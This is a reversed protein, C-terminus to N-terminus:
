ALRANIRTRYKQVPYKKKAKSESRSPGSRSSSAATANTSKSAVSKKGKDRCSFLTVTVCQSALSVVSVVRRMCSISPLRTEKRNERIIQANCTKRAVYLFNTICFSWCTHLQLVKKEHYGELGPWYKTTLFIERRDIGTKQTWRQIAEGVSQEQGYFEATDIHRIGADLAAIVSSVLEEDTFDEQGHKTGAADITSAGGGGKNRAYRGQIWKTGTGFVLKPCRVYNSFYFHQKRDEFRCQRDEADDVPDPDSDPELVQDSLIFRSLTVSMESESTASSVLCVQSAFPAHDNWGRRLPTRMALENLVGFQM